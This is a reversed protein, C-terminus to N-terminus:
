SRSVGGRLSGDGMPVVPNGLGLGDMVVRLVLGDVVIRLVLGDVVIRNHLIDTNAIVATRINGPVFSSMNLVRQKIATVTTRTM